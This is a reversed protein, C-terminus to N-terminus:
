TSAVAPPATPVDDDNAPLPKGFRDRRIQRPAAVALPLALNPMASQVITREIILSAVGKWGCEENSCSLRTERFLPTIQKSSRFATPSSCHPCPARGGLRQDSVSFSGSPAGASTM